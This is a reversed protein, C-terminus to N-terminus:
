SAGVESGSDADVGAQAGVDRFMPAENVTVVLSDMGVGGDDDNLTVTVTYVDANRYFHRLEFTKDTLSLAQVGSGDGYDVTATWTDSGPDEFSGSRTFANGKDMVADPGAYVTPAVNNVTLTTSAEVPPGFGDDVRITVPFSGDNIGLARLQTWSLAPTEGVADGFVSDGNVDWSFDLPDGDPDSSDSADLHLAEGEVILYPGGVDAIPPENQAKGQVTVLVGDSEGSPMKTGAAARTTLTVDGAYTDLNVTTTWNGAADALAVSLFRGNAYIRVAGDPECIGAVPVTAADERAIVAGPTPLTITPTESVIPTEYYGTRGADHQITPWPISDPNYSGPGLDWVYVMESAIVLELRGDADIDAVAPSSQSGSDIHWSELVSGTVGSQGGDSLALVHVEGTGDLRTSFFMADPMGDNNVDALVPSSRQDARVSLGFFPPTYEPLNGDGDLDQLYLGPGIDNASIGRTLQIIELDADEDLNALAPSAMTPTDVYASRNKRSVGTHETITIINSGRENGHHTEVVELDGNGDIDGISPNPWLGVYPSGAYRVNGLDTRWLESGDTNYAFMRDDYSETFVIEPEPDADLNAVAASSRAASFYSMGFVKPIWPESATGNPEFVYLSRDGSWQIIEAEPDGDVNAVTPGSERYDQLTRPWDAIGDGDSDVVTGDGNWAWIHNTTAVVIEPQPDGDLNGAAPAAMYNEGGAYQPWGPLLNGETDWCYVDGALTVAVVELRGDRNLDVLLPTSASYSDPLNQPWGPQAGVSAVAIEVAGTNLTPSTASLEILGATSATQVTITAVGNQTIVPNTGSLGVGAPAADLSFTMVYDPSTVVNGQYDLVRATVETLDGVTLFSPAELVIDYAVQVTVETHLGGYDARVTVDGPATTAQLLVTAIGHAPEVTTDGVLTASAAGATISFDVSNTPVEVRQGDADFLAATLTTTSTGDPSLKAPDATLVVYDADTPTSPYFGRHTPDHQYGGWEVNRPDYTGRLDWTYWKGAGVNLPIGGATILEIDGDGDMDGITPPVRFAQETYQPWGPVVSGDVNWANLHSGAWVMTLIESAGDGDIDAVIPSLPDGVSDGYQGVNIGRPWDPNPTGDDHYVYVQKDGAAFVIELTADGDLNALVPGAASAAVTGPVPWGSMLSGDSEFAYIASSDSRGAVIEIQGDGDIDGAVPSGAIPGGVDVGNVSWGSLAAGTGAFAHVFGKKTTDNNISSGVVIELKGDNNIDAMTPASPVSEDSRVQWNGLENGDMDWVHIYGDSTAAVLELDGNADLNGLAIAGEIKAGARATVVEKDDTVIRTGNVIRAGDGDFIYVSGSDTGIIIELDGDRDIDAVSPTCSSDADLQIPWGPLSTGDPQLVQVGSASPFVLEKDGDGDLDAVVQGGHIVDQEQYPWGSQIAAQTYFAGDTSYVPGNGYADYSKVRYHYQAEPALGPITVLHVDTYGPNLAIQGYSSDTGYEVVASTPEDTDWVVGVYSDRRFQVSPGSVIAPPTADSGTQEAPPPNWVSNIQQQAYIESGTGTNVKNLAYTILGDAEGDQIAEFVQQCATYTYQNGATGVTVILPLGYMDHASEHAIRIHDRLSASSGHSNNPYDRYTMIVGDAYQGEESTIPMKDVYLSPMFKFGANIATGSQKVGALDFTDRFWGYFDDVVLGMVNPHANMQEAVKEAWTHHDSYPQIGFHRNLTVWVRIGYQEAIPIFQKCSDWSSATGSNNINFFYDTIRMDALRNALVDADLSGDPKKVYENWDGLMNYWNNGIDRVDTIGIVREDGVNGAADHPIVSIQYTGDVASTLWVTIQEPVSDDIAYDADRVLPVGDRQVSVLTAGRDFDGDNDHFGLQVGGLCTVIADHASVSAGGQRSWVAEGSDSLLRIEDLVPAANLMRRDELPELRLLRHFRKSRKKRSNVNVRAKSASSRHQLSM